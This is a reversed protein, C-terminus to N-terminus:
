RSGSRCWSAISAQRQILPETTASNTSAAASWKSDVASVASQVRYNLGENTLDVTFTGDSSNSVKAEQISSGGFAGGVSVLQTLDKM